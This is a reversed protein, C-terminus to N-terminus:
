LCVIQMKLMKYLLMKIAKPM